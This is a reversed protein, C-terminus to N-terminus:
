AIVALKAILPPDAVWGKRTFLSAKIEPANNTLPFIAVASDIVM